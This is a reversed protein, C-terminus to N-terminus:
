DMRNMLDRCLEMIHAVKQEHTLKSDTLCETAPRFIRWVEIFKGGDMTGIRDFVKKLGDHHAIRSVDQPKVLETSNATHLRGQAIRTTVAALASTKFCYTVMAALGAALATAISSGTAMQVASAPDNSYSRNRNSGTNVNIGPFIFDNDPGSHNFATGSDDAAGILFIKDRNYHSPYHKMQTRQDPSSCFMLVDKSCALSLVDDIRKRNDTGSKPIPITWSMSIVDAKKELAAEIAPAISSEDITLHQGGKSPQTKLKISYIRAMPCVKLIMRAMDTGHGNTSVYYQGVEDDGQYDFTKGGVFQNSFALDLTDVGDDILAVIVDKQLTSLIQSDATSITKAKESSSTLLHDSGKSTEEWLGRMPKSFKEMQIIWAHEHAADPMGTSKPIVKRTTSNEFKSDDWSEIVQIDHHDSGIKDITQNGSKKSPHNVKYSQDLRVQFLDLNRRIWDRHDPLESVAPIHINIKRLELLRPLGRVESWARLTANSGSWKLTLHRLDKRPKILTDASTLKWTGQDVESIDARECIVSPDLDPKQWDLHEITFNRLVIQISEDSHPDQSDEQVQLNLIREVGKRKLWEAFFEMDQRGGARRVPALKGSRKVRVVPFRAYMLVKDFTIGSDADEGFQKSFIDAHTESLPGRCDFSIHVDKLNKGYLFDTVERISRTRMYHLKLLECVKESNKELVDSPLTKRTNAKQRGNKATEGVKPGTPVRKIPSNPAHSAKLQSTRINALIEGTMDGQDRQVPDQSMPMLNQQYGNEEKNQLGERQRREDEKLQQRKRENETMTEPELQKRSDRNHDPKKGGRERDEPGKPGKERFGSKPSDKEKMPIVSTLSKSFTRDATEQPKSEQAKRAEEAQFASKTREHETYVSYEIGDDKRTYQLDLFTKLSEHKSSTRLTEMVTNDKHLLKKILSVRGDSCESYRVAHHFPSKGNGDCMALAKPSSKNILNSLTKAKGPARPDGLTEFASTLCTKMSSGEGFSFELAKQLHDNHSKLLISDVLKYTYKKLRIAQYLPTQNEENKAELLHPYRSVLTEVLLSVHDIDGWTYSKKMSVKLIIEHLFSGAKEWAQTVVDGHRNIFEDVDAQSPNPKNFRAEMDKIAETLATDHSDDEDEDEDEDDYDEKEHKDDKDSEVDYLERHELDAM